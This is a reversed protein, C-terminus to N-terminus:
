RSLEALKQLAMQRHGATVADLTFDDFMVEVDETTLSWADAVRADIDTILDLRHDDDLPGFEVGCEDAFGAFRDDVCSLRAASTAIAAACEDTLNPVTLNELLFYNLHVEVYRRAQWDFPLSNMVGLCLASAGRPETSDFVLWPATNTLFTRPPVLASRVTRSDTARSVDRFALRAGELQDLMLSCREDRSLEDGLSSEKGPNKRGLKAMVDPGDACVREGAGHPAYQDFSEGKWLTRGVSADTWFRKDKTEDLERVPFCRWRGAGWPFLHETRVKTLVGAETVSRVLPVVLGSGMAAPPLTVGPSAAQVHWDALSTAVGAVAVAHSSPPESARASVAAVTYQPHTSFMWLRRNVLFDLRDCTNETMLWTRFGTSGKTAFTSRPLVVGLAGGRCLVKAYRQCFFKYLDPDGPMSVYDSSNAFYSRQEGVGSNLAEYRDDLDPREAILRDIAEDRAKSRLSRLGPQFLGLFALREVTVEDWPPNGVVCDFGPSDGSFVAPFELPWHLFHHRDALAEAARGLGTDAGELLAFVKLEVHERAGKMDFGAATWLDFVRKLGHLAARAAEDAHESASVEAPTSDGSAAIQEVLDAANAIAKEVPDGFMSVGNGDGFSITEPRAVGVLSNGLVVNRDLYALSLGPVFSALWLSLKAVETGMPSLDVGFVCRKLVLRRLLAADDITAGASAGVRLHDLLGAVEPLPHKALFRLLRDALSNTVEVLFHASGCSPDLVSFNFVANAAAVPDTTALDGVQTLHREYAPMVAQKVLHRVLESRTYYVGGGKRSGEHQQWLLQGTAAEIDGDETPEYIKDKASYRYRIPQDAVALRVSLLSEYLHGLHGIEMTSFDIGTGTRADRGIASLIVAMSPDTLSCRELMATGDFGDAAFLRGNYAPVEWAPNGSRLAKILVMFRDWLSTSTPSLKDSTDIAEDILASLSNSSYTTADVPLHGAAESYLVFLLRFVLTLSAQELETRVTEEAVDRGSDQAWAGLARALEPLVTTRLSLDLRAHLDQGFQRAESELRDFGGHALYEPGLVALFGTDDVQLTAADLELYATTATGDSAGGDFLRMRGGAALIGFRAGNELCDNMLQGEPPRGANDLRSFEAISSKPHIVVVPHGGAKALYGRHPLQEVTWGLHGLVQQWSFSRAIDQTCETAPGWRGPDSRFRSDLTHLTLLGRAKLGPLGAQDLRDLESAVQRVVQLRSSQSILGTLAAGLADAAVTRMPSEFGPVGLALVCGDNAPDDGLALLPTGGGKTRDKWMRRLQRENKLSTAAVEMGGVTVAATSGEPSPFPKAGAAVLHEVLETANMFKPLFTARCSAVQPQFVLM